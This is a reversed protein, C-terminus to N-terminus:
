AAATHHFGCCFGNGSILGLREQDAYGHQGAHFLAIQRFDTQVNGRFFLDDTQCFQRLTRAQVAHDTGGLFGRRQAAFQSLIKDQYRGADTQVNGAVVVVVCFAVARKWHKRTIWGAFIVAVLGYPGIIDGSFLLAHVAGFLIM